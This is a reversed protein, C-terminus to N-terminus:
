GSVFQGANPLVTEGHSAQTGSRSAIRDGGRREGEVGAIEGYPEIRGCVTTCSRALQAFAVHAREHGRLFPPEDVAPSHALERSVLQLDLEICVTRQQLAGEFIGARNSRLLFLRAMSM